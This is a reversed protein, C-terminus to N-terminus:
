VAEQVFYPLMRNKKFAGEELTYDYILYYVDYTKNNSTGDANMYQDLDGYLTRASADAPYFGIYKGTTDTVEYTPNGYSNTYILLKGTAKYIRGYATRDANTLAMVNTITETVAGTLPLAKKEVNVVSLELGEDATAALQHTGSYTGVYDTRFGTVRLTNGQTVVNAGQDYIFMCGSTDCVYFGASAAAPKAAVFVVGEVTAREGAAIARAAETTIVSDSYDVRPMVTGSFKKTATAGKYSATATLTYPVPDSGIAPFKPTAYVVNSADIGTFTWKLAKDAKWTIKVEVENDEADLVTVLGLCQLQSTVEGYENIIAVSNAADTAISKSAADSCGALGLASVGVILVLLNKFLKM